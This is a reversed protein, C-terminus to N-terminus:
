ILLCPSAPSEMSGNCPACTGDTTLSSLIQMSCLTAPSTVHAVLSFHVSGRSSYQATSLDETRNSEKHGRPNYDVQSKQGQSKGPLFVPTPQWKRRWPIKRVWPDFGCRRWRQMAPLNKVVSGGPFGERPALTPPPYLPFSTPHHPPRHSCVRGPIELLFVARIVGQKLGALSVGSESRWFAPSYVWTTQLWQTELRKNPCGCSTLVGPIRNQTERCCQCWRAHKVNVERHTWRNDRRSRLM